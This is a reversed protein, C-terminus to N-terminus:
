GSPGSRAAERQGLLSAARTQQLPKNPPVSPLFSGSGHSCAVRCIHDHSTPHDTAM